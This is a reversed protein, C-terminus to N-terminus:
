RRREKQRGTFELRYLDIVFRDAERFRESHTEPTDPAITSLVYQFWLTGRDTRYPCLLYDETKPREIPVNPPLYAILKVPNYVPVLIHTHWKGIWVIENHKSGGVFRIPGSKNM